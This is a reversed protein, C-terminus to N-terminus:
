ATGEEGEVGEDNEDDQDERDSNKLITMGIGREFRLPKFFAWPLDERGAFYQGAIPMLERMNWILVDVYLHEVAIAGGVVTCYEPYGAFFEEVAERRSLSDGEGPVNPFGFYGAMVGDNLLAQAHWSDGNYFGSILERARTRGLLVDSRWVFDDPDKSETAERRYIQWTDTLDEPKIDLPHGKEVLAQPLDVLTMVPESAKVPLTGLNVYQDFYKTFALESLAHSVLLYAVFHRKNEPMDAPFIGEDMFLSMGSDDEVLQVKVNEYDYDVDDFRLAAVDSKALRHGITVKWSDQLAEPMHDRFYLLPYLRARDGKPSIVIDFKNDSADRGIEFEPSTFVLSLVLEVAGIMEDWQQQHFYDEIEARREEFTRWAHAVREQFSLMKPFYCVGNFAEELWADVRPDSGEEIHGFHEVADDMRGLRLAAVGMTTHWLDSEAEEDESEEELADIIDVLMQRAEPNWPDVMLATAQARILVEDGNEPERNNLDDLVADAQGDRLLQLYHDISPM